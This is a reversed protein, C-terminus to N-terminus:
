DIIPYPRKLKIRADSTTFQWDVKSNNSNRKTCWALVKAELKDKNALYDSLCQCSMIGIEIEALDLWSAHKPTYHTELKEALRRAKEPPFAAYLSAVPHTNLNVMVLVIKECNPYYEDQIMQICNAFDTRKRSDTIMVHRQGALPEFIM